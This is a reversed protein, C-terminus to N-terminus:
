ELVVARRLSAVIRWEGLSHQMLSGRKVSISSWLNFLTKLFNPGLTYKLTRSPRPELANRLHKARSWSSIDNLPLSLTPLLDTSPATAVAPSSPLDRWERSSCGQLLLWRFPDTSYIPVMLFSILLIKDWRGLRVRNLHDLPFNQSGTKPKPGILELELESKLDSDHDSRPSGSSSLNSPVIKM